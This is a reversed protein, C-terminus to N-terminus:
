LFVEFRVNIIHLKNYPIDRFIYYAEFLKTYYHYMISLDFIFLILYCYYFLYYDFFYFLINEM